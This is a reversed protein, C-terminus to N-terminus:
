VEGFCKKVYQNRQISVHSVLLIQCTAFKRDYNEVARRISKLVKSLVERFAHRGNLFDLGTLQNSHAVDGLYRGM